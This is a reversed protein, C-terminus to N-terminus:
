QPGGPCRTAVVPTGAALAEVLVNGFGEWRAGHVFVDARAFVGHPNELFGPFAVSGALGLEAALAQLSGLRPGEGLIM